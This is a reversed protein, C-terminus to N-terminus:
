LLNWYYFVWLVLLSAGTLITYHIRAPLKWIKKWWVFVCFALIVAGSITMLVPIMGLLPDWAPFVGFASPPLNYIPHNDGTLVVSVLLLLFLTAFIVVALRAARSIINSGGGTRRRVAGLLWRAFWFVLSVLLLLLTGVLALITFASTAYWPAKSYTMPGDSALMTRGFPGTEFVLTRLPGFYDQTRGERLNHYLGPEMEVFRNTEGNVTVLLYGDDNVNVQVVGLLLATFSEETTFSRSNQQYEGVYQRSREFMGDHPAYEQAGSFPYYRDLFAQFLATHLLHSGGSYVVFIGTNHEPLLYLGSDFLMTSGGHFLVQQGNFQGEMFGLTMGGLQPHHSYQKAHMQRLTSEQLIRGEGAAGDELHALMFKAMDLATASMSGEPEQMYEFDAALYEGDVYRYAGVMGPTLHSPLPQRFTSRDMQIPTLINQEVYAAFPQGSVREVIYGALAAGYNSYAMVTGPPYVREPQYVRIYESLPLLQDESIRFIADPYAEFGATHTLLHRLTVPPVDAQPDTIIRDPIAFDLYSNVDTDLDLKGQEVLQMVATWTFLKAVSGVRFLTDAGDVPLEDDQSAFGYGKVLVVEGDRVVSVAANPIM